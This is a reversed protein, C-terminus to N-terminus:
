FKKELSHIFTSDDVHNTFDIENFTPFDSCVRVKYHGNQTQIENFIYYSKSSEYYTKDKYEFYYNISRMGKSPSKYGNTIGIVEDYEKFLLFYCRTSDYAFFCILLITFILGAWAKNKYFPFLVMVGLVVIMLDTGLVKQLHNDM